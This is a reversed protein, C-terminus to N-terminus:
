VGTHAPLGRAANQKFLSHNPISHHVSLSPSFFEIQVEETLDSMKM